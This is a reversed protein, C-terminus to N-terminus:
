RVGLSDPLHCESYTALPSLWMGPKETSGPVQGYSQLDERGFFFRVRPRLIASWSRSTIQSSFAIGLVREVM